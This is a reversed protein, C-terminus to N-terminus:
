YGNLQLHHEILEGAVSKSAMPLLPLNSPSFWAAEEIEQKDEQLDGSKYDAFFGLMLQSPFPWSQSKIYRVNDVDIGVEEKVERVVTQEPTEGAEIFGALCSYFDSRARAHKALLLEEGRSVLVIVCPNIRPYFSVNCSACVMARELEHTKTPSGCTGCFRHSSYWNVLQGGLGPFRFQENDSEMMIKWLPVLEADISECVEKDLQVAMHRIQNETDILLPRHSNFLLHQIQSISWYLTKGRVLLQRGHYIFVRDEKLSNSPDVFFEAASTL